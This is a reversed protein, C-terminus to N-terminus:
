YQYLGKTLSGGIRIVPPNQPFARLGILSNMVPRFRAIVEDVHEKRESRPKLHFFMRGFNPGGASVSGSTGGIGVFFSRIAPDQRLKDALIQHDRAMDLHSAGQTAETIAFIQSTDESPLFGKPIRLFLWMTAGLIVFSLMLVALRYRLTVQLTREYL